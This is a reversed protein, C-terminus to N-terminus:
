WSLGPMERTLAQMEDLLAEFHRTHRGARGGSIQESSKKERSQPWSLGAESLTESLRAQWPTKLAARDPAIEDTLLRAELADMEFMEGSYPALATIALQARRHSEETGQGFRLM